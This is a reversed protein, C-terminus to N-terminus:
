AGMLGRLFHESKEGAQAEQDSAVQGGGKGDSGKYYHLQTSSRGDNLQEM